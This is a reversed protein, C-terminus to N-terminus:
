KGSHLLEEIEFPIKIIDKFKVTEESKRLLQNNFLWVHRPAEVKGKIFDLGFLTLRWFGTNTEKSLKPEILGWFRM